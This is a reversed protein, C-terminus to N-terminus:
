FDKLLFRVTEQIKNLGARKMPSSAFRLRFEDETMNLWDEMRMELLGQIPQLAAIANGKAFRNWPCVDMCADCGYLRNGILSLFTEDIAEKREITLYSICRNANMCHPAYLAKTPCTDMCRHCIGCHNRIPEDYELPQNIILEGIFCFSGIKPNILSGNKGIWGVGAQEAWRRELMPASDVFPRGELEPCIAKLKDLMIFLMNKMVKHYDTGYAYRAIQPYKEGQKFSPYYNLLVVIVSQAGDVLLQPNIRKDFHNELYNMTAQNRKDLWSKLFTADNLLPRAKAIGCIDFGVSAAEKKVRSTLQHIDMRGKESLLFAEANKHM